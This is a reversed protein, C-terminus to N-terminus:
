CQLECFVSNAGRLIRQAFGSSQPLCGQVHNNPRTRNSLVAVSSSLGRVPWIRIIIGYKDGFGAPASKAGATAVSVAFRFLEAGGHFFDRREVSNAQRCSLALARRDVRPSPRAL